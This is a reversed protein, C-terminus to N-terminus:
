EAFDYTESLSVCERTQPLQSVAAQLDILVNTGSVPPTAGADVIVELGPQRGYAEFRYIPALADDRIWDIGNLNVCPLTTPGSPEIGCRLIVSAPEGWAGTAQANTERKEQGDVTAPLRVIVEACDPNNADAAAEVPVITACGSSAFALVLMLSATKV